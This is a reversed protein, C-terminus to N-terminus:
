GVKCIFAKAPRLAAKKLDEKNSLKGWHYMSAALNYSVGTWVENDHDFESAKTGAAGQPHWINAAGVDGSGDGDYDKLPKVLHKYCEEFHSTMRKSNLADPLGFVEACRQGVLGDAMLCSNTENYQYYKMTENWFQKESNPRAKVLQENVQLLLSADNRYTAMEKLADLSTIWLVANLLKDKVYESSNMETIGDDNKDTAVQYNFSRKVALWCIDLFADDNYQKWYM